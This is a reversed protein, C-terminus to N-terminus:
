LKNFKNTSIANGIIALDPLNLTWIIDGKNIPTIKNIVTSLNGSPHPGSVNIKSVGEIDKFVNSNGKKLTLFTKGSTLLSIHDIATQINELQDKM